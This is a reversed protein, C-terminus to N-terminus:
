DRDHNFAEAYVAAIGRRFREPDSTRQLPAFIAKEIDEFDAPQPIFADFVETLTEHSMDVGSVLILRTPSDTMFALEALRLAPLGLNILPFLVADFGGALLKKLNADDLPPDFAQTLDVKVNGRRRFHEALIPPFYPLAWFCFVAVNASTPNSLDDSM